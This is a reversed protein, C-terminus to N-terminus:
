VKMALGSEPNDLDQVRGGDREDHDGTALRMGQRRGKLHGGDQGLREAEVCQCGPCRTLFTSLTPVLRRTRLWRPGQRVLTAM